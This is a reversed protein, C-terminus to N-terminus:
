AREGVAGYSIPSPQAAATGRRASSARCGHTTRRTPRSLAHRCRIHRAMLNYEVGRECFYGLVRPVNVGHAEEALQGLHFAEKELSGRAGATRGTRRSYTTRMSPTPAHRAAPKMWERLQRSLCCTASALELVLDFSLVLDSPDADRPM